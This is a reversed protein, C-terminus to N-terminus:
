YAWALSRNTQTEKQAKAVYLMRLQQLESISYKSLTRGNITFSQVADTAVGALANDIAALTECATPARAAGLAPQLTISGSDLVRKLEGTDWLQWEYVGPKLLATEIDAKWGGDQSVATHASARGGSRLALRFELSGSADSKSTLTLTEGIVM